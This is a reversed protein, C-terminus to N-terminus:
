VKGLKTLCRPCTVLKTDKTKDQSGKTNCLLFGAGKDMHTAYLSGNFKNLKEATKNASNINRCEFYKVSNFYVDFQVKGNKRVAEKIETPM